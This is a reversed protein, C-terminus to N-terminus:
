AARLARDDQDGVLEARQGVEDVPGHHHTVTADGVVAGREGVVLHVVGLEALRVRVVVVALRRLVVVGRM